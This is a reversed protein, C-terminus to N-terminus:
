LITRGVGRVAGVANAVNEANEGVAVFLQEGVAPARSLNTVVSTMSGESSALAEIVEVSTTLGHTSDFLNKPNRRFRHLRHIGKRM